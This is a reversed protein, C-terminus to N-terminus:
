RGREEWRIKKWYDTTLCADWGGRLLEGGRGPGRARLRTARAIGWGMVDMWGDMWGAFLGMTFYASLGSVRERARKGRGARSAFGRGKYGQRRTGRGWRLWIPFRVIALPSPPPSPFAPEPLPVLTLRSTSHIPNSQVPYVLSHLAAPQWCCGNPHFFFSRSHTLSHLSPCCAAANEIKERRAELWLWNRLPAPVLDSLPANCQM